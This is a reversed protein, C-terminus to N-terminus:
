LDVVQALASVGKDTRGAAAVASRGVSQPIISRIGALVAGEVTPMTGPLRMWGHFAQGLYALEVQYTIRPRKDKLPAKLPQPARNVATTNESQNIYERDSNSEAPKNSLDIRTSQNSESAQQKSSHASPRLPLVELADSEGRFSSTGRLGLDELDALGAVM